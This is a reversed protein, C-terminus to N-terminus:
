SRVSILKESAEAEIPHSGVGGMIIKADEVTGDAALKLCTAVGLIPFDFSGRRRLKWYTARWGNIPPLQIETLLEDPRRSLHAMGDDVYLSEATIVREGEKFGAESQRRDRGDRARFREVARGLLASQISRGLLYRWGEEHLLSDGPAMRLVPRLLQLAHRAASQRRHTSMNRLHPTSILEAATAVAKYHERLNKDHCVDTLTAGAGLTMGGKPTGEFERLQDMQALGIVIKPTQQRRKMNPYLDTGGAVFMAEPGNDAMM